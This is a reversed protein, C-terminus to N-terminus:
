PLPVHPMLVGPTQQQTRRRRLGGVGQSLKDMGALRLSEIVRTPRVRAAATASLGRHAPRDSCRDTAGDTETVDGLRDPGDGPLLASFRSCKRILTPPGRQNGCSRLRRVRCARAFFCVGNTTSAM